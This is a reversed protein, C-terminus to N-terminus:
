ARTFRAIRKTLARVVPNADGAVGPYPIGAAEALRAQRENVAVSRTLAFLEHWRLEVVDRGLAREFRAVVEERPLFGPVTGGVARTTLEDLVLYWALDSEAPGIWALEWDLVSRVRGDDAFVVNGIRADGWCLSPSPADIVPATDACWAIADALAATPEGDAAWDVYDRWWRLEGALAAGDGGRLVPTLAGVPRDARAIAALTDVFSEHLARQRGTPADTIWRDLAPAEGGVHGDEFSMVLFADGLWTGDDEYALVRPVPVATDALADLVRAQAALDYSPWTPVPPPLRVVFRAPVARDDHGDRDQETATDVVLTENTWGASPRTIGVVTCPAGPWRHRCWAQLGRVLEDDDRRALTVM